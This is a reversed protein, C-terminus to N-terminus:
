GLALTVALGLAVTSAILMMLVFARHKVDRDHAQGKAVWREWREDGTVATVQTTLAM